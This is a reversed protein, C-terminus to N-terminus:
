ALGGQSELSPEKMAAQGLKGDDETELLMGRPSLAKPLDASLSGCHILVNMELVRESALEHVIPWSDVKKV